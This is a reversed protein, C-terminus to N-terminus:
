RGAKSSSFEARSFRRAAREVVGPDARCGRSLTARPGRASDPVPRLPARPRARRRPDRARRESLRPLGMPARCARPSPDAARGGVRRPPDQDYDRRCLDAGGGPRFLLRSRAHERDGVPRSLRAGRRATAGSPSSRPATRVGLAIKDELRIPHPLSVASIAIKDDKSPWARRGTKGWIIADVPSLGKRDIGDARRRASRYLM